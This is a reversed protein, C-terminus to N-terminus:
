YAIIYLQGNVHRITFAGSVPMSVLTDGSSPKPKPVVIKPKVVKPKPKPKDEVIDFGHEDKHDPISLIMSSSAVIVLILAIVALEVVYISKM